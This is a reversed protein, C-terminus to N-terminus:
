IPFFGIDRWSHVSAIRQRRRINIVWVTVDKNPCRKELLSPLLFMLVHLMHQATWAGSGPQVLQAAANSHNLEAKFPKGACRTSIKRGVLYLNRLDDWKIFMYHKLYPTWLDKEFMTSKEEANNCLCDYKFSHSWISAYFEPKRVKNCYLVYIRHSLCFCLCLYVRIKAFLVNPLLLQEDELGKVSCSFVQQLHAISIVKVKLHLIVKFGPNRPHESYATPEQHHRHYSKARCDTPQQNSGPEVREKPLISWRGQKQWVTALIWYNALRVLYASFKLAYYILLLIPYVCYLM